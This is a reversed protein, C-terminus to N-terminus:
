KGYWMYAPTIACIAGHRGAVHGWDESYVRWGLENSGDHDADVDWDALEIKAAESSQLWQAVIPTVGKATLPCPFGQAEKDYDSKYWLLIMGKQPHIVYHTCKRDNFSGHSFALELVQALAEEGAGNINFIRNDM